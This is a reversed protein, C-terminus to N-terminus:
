IHVEYEELEDQDVHRKCSKCIGPWRSRHQGDCKLCKRNTIFKRKEIASLTPKKTEMTKDEGPSSRPSRGLARDEPDAVSRGLVDKNQKGM